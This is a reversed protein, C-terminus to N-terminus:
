HDSPQKRADEDPSCFRRLFRDGIGYPFVAEQCLRRPIPLIIGSGDVIVPSEELELRIILAPM